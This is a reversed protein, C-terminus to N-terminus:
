RRATTAELALLLREFLNGLDAGNISLTLNITVNSPCSVDVTVPATPTAMAQGQKGSM